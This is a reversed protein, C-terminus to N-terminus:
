AEEEPAAEEEGEEERGIVEPEMLAEGELEEEEEPEEEINPRTIVVVVETDEHMLEVGSPADLDSIYRVDDIEMGDTSIKLFDPIEDAPCSITVEHLPQELVGGAEIGPATGTLRVPITVEVKEHASIRAFDVHLIHDGLADYQIDKVLVKQEAGSLDLTYVHHGTDLAKVLDHTDIGLSVTGEGHGYLVIPTQGAKRLQRASRSGTGDRQQTKLISVDAM